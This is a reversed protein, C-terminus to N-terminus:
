AWQRGEGGRFRRDAPWERPFPAFVPAKEVNKEVTTSFEGAYDEFEQLIM